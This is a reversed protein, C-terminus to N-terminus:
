ARPRVTPQASAPAESRFGIRAHTGDCFPKNESGGCRCLRANEARAVTRGTGSCIELSGFVQLSGDALPTIRFLSGRTELPDSAITTPEGTAPKDVAVTLHEEFEAHLETFREAVARLRGSIGSLPIHEELKTAAGALECVRESLIQAACRQVLQGSSLSLAFTLGATANPRTRGVPMRTVTDGVYSMAYMIETASAALGVRLDRPLPAPSFVQAFTRMLLGYLANGLDIFKTTLTDTIATVARRGRPNDLCPNEVV